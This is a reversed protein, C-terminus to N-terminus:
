KGKNNENSAYVGINQNNKKITNNAKFLKFSYNSRKLHQLTKIQKYISLPLINKIKLKLM